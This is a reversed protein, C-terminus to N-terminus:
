VRCSNCNLLQGARQDFYGQAHGVQNAQLSMLRGGLGGYWGLRYIGISYATGEIQTSVYFTLKQGPSVSTASAYAQIQTTSEKGRPIMWSDTGLHANEIVIPNGSTVLTQPDGGSTRSAFLGPGFMSGALVVAVVIFFVVVGLVLRLRM